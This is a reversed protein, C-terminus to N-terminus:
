VSSYFSESRGPLCLVGRVTGGGGEVGRKEKKKKVLAEIAKGYARKSGHSYRHFSDHEDPQGVTELQLVHSLVRSSNLWVTEYRVHKSAGNVEVM